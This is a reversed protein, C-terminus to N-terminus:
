RKRGLTWLAKGLVLIVVGAIIVLVHSVNTAAELRVEHTDVVREKSRIKRDPKVTSTRSCDWWGMRYLRSCMAM